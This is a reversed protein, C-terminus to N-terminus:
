AAFRRLVVILAEAKVHPWGNQSQGAHELADEFFSALSQFVIDGQHRQIRLPAREKIVACRQVEQGVSLLHTGVQLGVRAVRFRGISVGLKQLHRFLQVLYGIAKEKPTADTAQGIRKLRASHKIQFHQAIDHRQAHALRNCSDNAFM